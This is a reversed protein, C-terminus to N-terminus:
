KIEIRKESETQESQAWLTFLQVAQPKKTRMLTYSKGKPESKMWRIFIQCFTIIIAHKVIKKTARKKKGIILFLLRSYLLSQITAHNTKM